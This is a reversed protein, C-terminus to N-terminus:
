GRGARRRLVGPRRGGACEGHRWGVGPGSACALVGGRDNDPIRSADQEPERCTTQDGRLYLSSTSGHGEFTARTLATDFRPYSCGMFCRVARATASTGKHAPSAKPAPGVYAPGDAVLVEKAKLLDPYSVLM